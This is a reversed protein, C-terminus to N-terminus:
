DVWMPGLYVCPDGPQWRRLFRQIPPHLSIGDLDHPEFLRHGLVADDDSAVRSLSGRLDGAFVVHVVHRGPQSGNPSISEAIAVPGEVPLEDHVGLLGTEERLERQLAETLSEGAQVGGGPLLWHERGDREHRCLLFGGHWRLVASVRIRPDPRM